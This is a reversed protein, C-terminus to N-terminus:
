IVCTDIRDLTERRVEVRELPVQACGKCDAAPERGRRGLRVRALVQASKGSMLNQGCDAVGVDPQDFRHSSGGFTMPEDFLEGRAQM